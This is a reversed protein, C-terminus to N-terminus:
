CLGVFVGNDNELTMSIREMWPQTNYNEVRSYTQFTRAVMYTLIAMAHNQGPCIRPGKNFPIFGPMDTNLGEWREPYFKEPNDGFDTGLRHRAWTSFVIIDGKQVFVPSAKDPGGGTPLTTHKNALRANVTAPPYLRLAENICWRVYHLTALDKWEPPKMGLTSLVSERLKRVVREDQSLAFFLGSLTTGMSDNALLISLVQDTFLRRDEKASEAAGVAKVAYADVYEQMRKCAQLFARKSFLHRLPGRFGDSVIRDKVLFIDDVFQKKESAQTLSLADVCEGLFLSTQVDLSLAFVQDQINFVQGNEPVLSCFSQFLHECINLDVIKKPNSLRVRLEERSRKWKDGDLTFIGHPTVCEFMHKRLPSSDFDPLGKFLIHKINEANCTFIFRHGLIYSTYTESCDQFLTNLYPLLTRNQIHFGFEIPKSKESAAPKCDHYHSLKSYRHAQYLRQGLFFVIIGVLLHVFDNIPSM